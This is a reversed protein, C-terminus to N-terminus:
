APADETLAPRYLQAANAFVDFVQLAATRLDPIQAPDLQDLAAVFTPWLPLEAHHTLYATAAHLSTDESALVHRALFRAGLRSGELVYVAGAIGRTDIAPLWLPEPKSLGLTQLDQALAARRRRDPWDPLWQHIGLAELREELPFVAAAHARLFAEYGSRSALAFGSFARDLAEHRDATALKLDMRISM